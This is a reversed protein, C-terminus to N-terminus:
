QKNINKITGYEIDNTKSLYNKERYFLKFCSCYNSKKEKPLIESNIVLTLNNDTKIETNVEDSKKIMEQNIHNICNQVHGTSWWLTLGSIIGPISCTVMVLADEEPSLSKRLHHTSLYTLATIIEGVYFSSVLRLATGWSNNNNNCDNANSPSFM